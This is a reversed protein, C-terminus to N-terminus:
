PGAGSTQALAERVMRVVGDAWHPESNLSPVLVLGEGGHAVFDDHGRIAIEELTELCDAVFSPSLVVIKKVGEAALEQLRIDTFPQIWPTRGLRSQFTIEYAAEPLQLAAAMARTSAFCQARYCYANAAVMAGCCDSSKLCHAGSRDSRTCHREPLGHYSFLVKDPRQEAIIPAARTVFSDIYASHEFFPPIVQVSPLNWRPAVLELVREVASGWAASSYHPFLPLVVLREVGASELEGLAKELSPSQYRMGLSAPIDPGLRSRVEELLDLGHFLLPSGRDTWVQRYAAASKKPRFPLIAFNLLFWRAVPNLDIVRPDSLFQRLYRRVASTEPEDPTGLNILLLGTRPM